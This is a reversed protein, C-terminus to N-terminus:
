ERAQTVSVRFHVNNSAESFYIVKDQNNHTYAGDKRTNTMLHM